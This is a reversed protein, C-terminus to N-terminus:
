NSEQWLYETGATKRGPEDIPTGDCGDRGKEVEYPRTRETEPTEEGRKRCDVGV